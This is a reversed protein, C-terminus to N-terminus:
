SRAPLAQSASSDDDILEHAGIIREPDVTVFVGSNDDWEGHYVLSYDAAHRLFRKPDNAAEGFSRIAEGRSRAYFPPLFAGAIKDFVSFVMMKM